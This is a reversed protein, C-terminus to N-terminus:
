HINHVSLGDYAKRYELIARKESEAISPNKQYLEALKKKTNALITDQWFGKQFTLSM